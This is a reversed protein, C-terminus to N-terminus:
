SDGRPVGDQMQPKQRSEISAEPSPTPLTAPANPRTSAKLEQVLSRLAEASIGTAIREALDSGVIVGEGGRGIIARLQEPGSAEWRVILPLEAPAIGRIRRIFAELHADFGRQAGSVEPHPVLSLFGTTLATIMKLREDRTEPTVFFVTDLHLRRALAVLSAAEEVPLDVVAVGDVNADRCRKLFVDEGMALVPNYYTTLILPISTEGRLEKVFDLVVPPTIAAARAREHAAQIAREEGMPDSFPLSLMLADIGGAILTRAYERSRVLDPDGTVLHGLLAGEGRARLEKFQAQIRSM